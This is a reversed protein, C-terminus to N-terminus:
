ENSQLTLLGCFGARGAYYPCCQIQFWPDSTQAELFPFKEKVDHRTTLQRVISIWFNHSITAHWKCFCQYNSTLLGPFVSLHVSMWSSKSNPIFGGGGGVCFFCFFFFFFFGFFFFLCVGFSDDYKWVTVCNEPKILIIYNSNSFKSHNPKKTVGVSCSNHPSKGAKSPFSSRLHSEM